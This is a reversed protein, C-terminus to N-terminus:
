SELSAVSTRARVRWISRVAARVQDGSGETDPEEIGLADTREVFSLGLTEDAYIQAHVDAWLAMAAAFWEEERATVYIDVYVDVDWDLRSVTQQGADEPTSVSGLAVNIWSKPAPDPTPRRDQAIPRVKAAYVREGAATGTGITTALAAVLEHIRNM